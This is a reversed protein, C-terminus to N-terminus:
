DPTPREVSNIVLVEVARSASQLKLGLQDEVATFISAGPAGRAQSDGRDDARLVQDAGWELGLDFEGQLGTEDVVVRDLHSSLGQLIIMDLTMGNAKLLNRGRQMGCSPSPGSAAAATTSTRAAQAACGHETRQLGPGLSGDKRILTLVYVPLERRETHAVLSFREALLTRLMSLIQPFETATATSGIAEIDVSETDLWSPGGVLRNNALPIFPTPTGYAYAILERVRVNRASFRGGPPTGMSTVSALSTNRKVSAIEFAPAPTQASLVALGGVLTLILAARIM